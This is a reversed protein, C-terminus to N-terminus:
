PVVQEGDLDFVAIADVPCADCADLIARRSLTGAGEVFTAIGEADFEFPAPPPEMCDGFGVCLLRDIRVRLGGLEREEIDQM